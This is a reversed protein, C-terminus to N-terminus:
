VCRSTYLLCIGVELDKMKKVQNDNSDLIKATDKIFIQEETVNGNADTSSVKVMGYATNVVTITGTIQMPASVSKVEIATISSSSTTVRDRICM